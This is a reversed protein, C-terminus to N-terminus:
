VIEVMATCHKPDFKEGSDGLEFVKSNTADDGCMGAGGRCFIGAAGIKAGGGAGGSPSNTLAFVFSLTQGAQLIHGPSLEFTLTGEDKDWTATDSAANSGVSMIM